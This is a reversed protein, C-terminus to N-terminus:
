RALNAHRSWCLKKKPESAVKRASWRERKRVRFL